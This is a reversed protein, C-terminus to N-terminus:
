YPRTPESIHILSLYLRTWLKGENAHNVAAPTMKITRHYTNNYSSVLEPLVDVYKYTQKQTFYRFMKAKITRILREVYNAKKDSTTVIHVVDEHKLYKELKENVFEGGADSRLLEPKRDKSFLTEIAKLVDEARNSKLAM